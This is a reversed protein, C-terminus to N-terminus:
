DDVDALVRQAQHPHGPLAPGATVGGGLLAEVDLEGEVAVHAAGDGHMVEAPLLDRPM